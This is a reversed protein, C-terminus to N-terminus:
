KKIAYNVCAKIQLYKKLQAPSAQEIFEQERSMERLYHSKNNVPALHLNQKMEEIMLTFEGRRRTQEQPSLKDFQNKLSEVSQRYKKFAELYGRYPAQKNAMIGLTNRLLKQADQDAVNDCTYNGKPPNKMLYWDLSNQSGSNRTDEREATQQSDYFATGKVLTDLFVDTYKDDALSKGNKDPHTMWAKMLTKDDVPSFACTNPESTLAMLAGSFCFHGTIHKTVGAPLLKLYSRLEEISLKEEGWLQIYVKGDQRQGHGTIFLTFHDGDKMKQGLELFKKRLDAKKASGDAVQHAAPVGATLQPLDRLRQDRFPNSGNASMIAVRDRTIGSLGFTRYAKLVNHSFNVYNDQETHPANIIMAYDTQSWAFSISLLFLLIFKFM